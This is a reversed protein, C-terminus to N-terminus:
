INSTMRSLCFGQRIAAYICSNFDKSTGGMWAQWIYSSGPAKTVSDSTPLAALLQLLVQTDNIEPRIFTRCITLCHRSMVSINNKPHEVIGQM